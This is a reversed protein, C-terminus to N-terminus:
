DGSSAIHLMRRFGACPVPAAGQVPNIANHHVGRPASRNGTLSNLSILPAGLDREFRLASVFAPDGTLRSGPPHRLGRLLRLLLARGLLTPFGGAPRLPGPSRVDRTAPLYAYHLVGSCHQIDQTIAAPTAQWHFPEVPLQEVRVQIQQGVPADVGVMTRHGRPGAPLGCVAHRQALDAADNIRHAVLAVPEGGDPPDVDRFLVPLFSRESQRGPGVFKNAFHDAEQQLCVVLWLERATGM